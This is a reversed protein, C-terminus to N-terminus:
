EIEGEIETGDRFTVVVSKDTKVTVYEVMAGWLDSDFEEIIGDQSLLQKKFQELAEIRVLQHQKKAKVEEMEKTAAEYRKALNDYAQCYPPIDVSM